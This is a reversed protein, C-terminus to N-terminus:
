EEVNENNEPEYYYEYEDRTSPKICVVENNNIIRNQEIKIIDYVRRYEWDVNVDLLTDWQVGYEDNKVIKRLNYYVNGDDEEGIHLSVSIVYENVESNLIHYGYWPQIQEITNFRNDNSPIKRVRRVVEGKVIEHEGGYSLINNVLELPLTRSAKMNYRIIASM